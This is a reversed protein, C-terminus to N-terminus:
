PNHSGLGKCSDGCSQERLDDRERCLQLFYGPDKNYARRSIIGRSDVARDVLLIGNLHDVEHQIVAAIDPDIDRLVAVKGELTRYKVSIDKLRRTMVMLDPFCMCSEWYGAEQDDLRLIEPNVMILPSSTQDIIIIRKLLGIQPAAIGNGFGKANRFARFVGLLRYADAKVAPDAPDKVPLSQMRLGPDGLPLIPLRNLDMSGSPADPM